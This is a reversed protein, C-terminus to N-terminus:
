AAVTSSANSNSANSSSNTRVSSNSNTTGMSRNLTSSVSTSRPWLSVAINSIRLRRDQQQLRWPM